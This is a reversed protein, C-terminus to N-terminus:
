PFIDLVSLLATHAARWFLLHLCKHGNELFLFNIQISLNSAEPQLARFLLYSFIYFHYQLHLTFFPTHFIDSSSRLASIYDFILLILGPLVYCNLWLRYLFVLEATSQQLPLHLYSFFPCYCLSQKKVGTCTSLSCVELLLLWCYVKPVYLFIQM